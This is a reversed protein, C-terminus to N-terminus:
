ARRTKRNSRRNRRAAAASMNRTTNRSNQVAKNLRESLSNFNKKLNTLEKTLASNEALTVQGSMNAVAMTAAAQANRLQANAANTAAKAAAAAANANAQRQSNESAKRNAEAQAIAAATAAEKQKRQAEEMDVMNQVKKLEYEKIIKSLQTVLPVLKKQRVGSPMTKRMDCGEGIQVFINAIEDRRDPIKNIYNMIEGDQLIDCLQQGTMSSFFKDKQSKLNKLHFAM